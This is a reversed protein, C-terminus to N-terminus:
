YSFACNQPTKNLKSVKYGQKRALSVLYQYRESSITKTRALVWLYERNPTGVLAQQYQPSVYLIWYDATFPWFFRVKLKSNSGPSVSWAKATATSKSLDAGKYCSNLVRVYQGQLRYQATTCHCGRQFFMPFSAIEYWKGMYRKLNVHPMTAPPVALVYVSSFSFVWAIFPLVYKRLM